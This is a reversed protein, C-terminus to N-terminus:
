VLRGQLFLICLWYALFFCVALVAALIPVPLKPMLIVAPLLTSEIRYISGVRNLMLPLWWTIALFILIMAYLTPLADRKKVLTYCILSWLGISVLLTQVAAARTFYPQERTMPRMIRIFTKVPNPLSQANGLQQQGRFFDFWVGIQIRQMLMVAGIGALSCGGVLAARALRNRFTGVRLDIIAWLSISAGTIFGLSYVPSAILCMFASRAWKRQVAFYFALLTIFNLLSIPFAAHYYMMGPFFAAILLCLINALSWRAQFFLNWLLGLTAIEFFAAVLVCAAPPSFGVAIVLRVVLSYGPMWPFNGLWMYFNTNPAYLGWYRYYGRTAISLYRLGDWKVLV